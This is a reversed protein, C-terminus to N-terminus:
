KRQRRARMRKDYAEAEAASILGDGDADIAKFQEDSGLFERRSVDGDRNKDMKRFWLPGARRQRPPPQPAGVRGKVVFVSRAFQDDINVPGRFVNARYNRPIESLSLCGDGDRDLKDVLKPLRRLERASLRGDGDTDLLDFLGKGQDSVQLSVVSATALKRLEAIDDLYALVEKLYLKGDGDRDMARFVGRFLPSQQAEKEDLYGNDDRDATKFRSSYFQRPNIGTFGGDPATGLGLEVRTNGLELVPTGGKDLRALGAPPAQGDRRTLEVAPEGPGRRGLRVTFEVEPAGVAFRALEEADLRGDGDADLRDFAAQGLGLAARTLKKAGKGYRGLLERALAPDPRKTRVVYFPGV